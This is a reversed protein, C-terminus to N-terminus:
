AFPRPNAGFQNAVTSFSPSISGYVPNWIGGDKIYISKVSQWNDNVKAWTNIVPTFSGLQHVAVGSVNFVFMAYGANGQITAIGGFGVNSPYYPTNFGGPTRGNPNEFTGSSLGFTGALAGQDGGVEAGGNGGGWGGGGGGGGGGDGVKTQGNQGAYTGVAAQGASGPANQGNRVGINGAGGGGGGGAAAAIPTNNLVIVTAGGGGGGGGSSGRGGATGGAGGGFSVGSNITLAVSGPGGTNIAVVRVTHTGASVFVRTEYTTRYDYVPLVEVGDIYITALNDASAILQYNGSAPFSVTYTKDFDRASTPDIWVGYTNLFTCYASNFQPVVPGGPGSSPTAARTDFLQSQTYSFGPSGGAASSRGSQGAGGGGGVAVQLVDGASISFNVISYGGGGGAGGTGSDNGGGGGGGGWLYATAPVGNGLQWTLQQLSGTYGVPRLVTAM